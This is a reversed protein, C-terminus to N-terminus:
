TNMKKPQCLLLLKMSNVRDIPHRLGNKPKNVVSSYEVPPCHEYIERFNILIGEILHIKVRKIPRGM